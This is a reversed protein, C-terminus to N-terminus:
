HSQNMFWNMMLACALNQGYIGMSYIWAEKKGIKGGPMFMKEKM